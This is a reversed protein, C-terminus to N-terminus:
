CKLAPSYRATIKPQLENPACVALADVHLNWKNVQQLCSINMINPTIYLRINM